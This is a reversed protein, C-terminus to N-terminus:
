PGRPRVPIEAAHAAELFLARLRDDKSQSAAERCYIWHEQPVEAGAQVAIALRLVALRGHGFSISRALLSLAAQEALMVADAQAGTRSGAAVGRRMQRIASRAMDHDECAAATSVAPSSCRM